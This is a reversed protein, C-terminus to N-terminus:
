ELGQELDQIIDQPDELGISLRLTFSSIGMSKREEDKLDLGFFLESPCILTETSGLSATFQIMKLRHCFKQADLTGPNLDFSIIGGSDKMQARAIEKYPYSELGPYLVHKFKSHKELYRAVELATASQRTYRLQYTKLGRTILNAAHPDLTAGLYGSFDRIKKMLESKGAVSGAIVDGHGNAYKTLSHIMIDIDFETHQHPGGFTGDMVVLLNHKRAIAILRQIDVMTLNPNTPSEFYILKTKEPIIAAELDSINALSLFTSQINYRPLFDRIFVRAPKYLEKFTILHEGAKLLALFTGSVAAIGSAMVLCEDKKQIDALTLELQKLTPNSIRSYIFQDSLAHEDSPSFKATQYIPQLIPENGKILKVKKPHNLKTSLSWSASNESM